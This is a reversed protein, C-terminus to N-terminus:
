YVANPGDVASLPHSIGNGSGLTKTIAGTAYDIVFVEAYYADPVFALTNKRNLTVDYPDAFGSGLTRTVRTYPPAIVDVTPGMQDCVILNNNKDIAMGGASALTVGLITAHCGNLGGKYEAISAASSGMSFDAFVDGAKDVTVGQVAGGPACSYLVANTAQKYERVSEGSYDAEYVDGQRDVSVGVPNVMGANYTFSPSSAGPAYETIDIGAYNAVYLNGVNDLTDGDPENLGKRIKKKLIYSGNKLVEVVGTRFDSVYLDKLGPYKAPRADAARAFRLRNLFPAVGARASGFRNLGLQHQASSSAPLSSMPAQSGACGSMLVVSITAASAAATRLLM